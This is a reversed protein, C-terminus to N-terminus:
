LSRYPWLPALWGTSSRCVPLDVDGALVVAECDLIGVLAHEGRVRAARVGFDTLVCESCVELHAVDIGVVAGDFAEIEDALRSESDLEM